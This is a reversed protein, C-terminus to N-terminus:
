DIFRENGIFGINVIGNRRASALVKAVVDYKARSNPKVRVDTPNTQAATEKFYHELQTLDAVPQDNWYLSGDFDIEITVSERKEIGPAGGVNMNVSHTALPLNLILMILLVLLVDILPTTNIDIMPTHENSDANSFPIMQAM